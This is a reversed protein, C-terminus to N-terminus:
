ICLNIIKIFEDLDKAKFLVINDELLEAGPYNLYKLALVKSTYKIEVKFEKPLIVNFFDEGMEKFTDLAEELNKSMEKSVKKPSKCIYSSESLTKTITSFINPIWLKAERVAEEDGSIYFVPVSEKFANFISFTTEGILIGNLKIYFITQDTFSHALPYHKGGAAHYGHLIVGTYAKNLGTLGKGDDGRILSVKENFDSLFVNTEFWHGDKYVIEDFDEELLNCILNAEDTWIKQFQLYEPKLPDVEDWRVNGAIGEMDGAVYIKKM